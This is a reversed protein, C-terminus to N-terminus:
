GVAWLGSDGLGSQPVSHFLKVGLCNFESARPFASLAFSWSFSGRTQHHWGLPWSLSGEFDFRQRSIGLEGPSSWVACRVARRGSTSRQSGIHGRVYEVVDAVYYSRVWLTVASVFILLSLACFINWACHKM